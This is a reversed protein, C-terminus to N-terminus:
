FGISSGSYVLAIKHQRVTEWVGLKKERAELVEGEHVLQEMTIRSSVDTQQVKPQSDNSEEM